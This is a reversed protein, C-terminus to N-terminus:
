PCGKSVMKVSLVRIRPEAAPQKKDVQTTGGPSSGVLTGTIALRHGIHASLDTGSEVSDIQVQKPRGGQVDSLRFGSTTQGRQLCGTLTQSDVRTEPKKIVKAAIVGATLCVAIAATAVARVM